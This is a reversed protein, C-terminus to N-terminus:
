NSLWPPEPLPEDEPTVKSDEVPPVRDGIVQMPPEPLREDLLDYIAGLLLRFARFDSYYGPSNKVLDRIKKHDSNMEWLRKMDDSFDIGPM